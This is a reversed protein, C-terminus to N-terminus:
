SRIHGSVDAALGAAISSVAREIEEETLTRDPAQFVLRFALSKQDDGLPRGRYIDFLTTRALLPGGHRGIAAEATAAAIDSGVVVALDREM